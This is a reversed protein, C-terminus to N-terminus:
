NSRLLGLTASFLQQRLRRLLRQEIQERDIACCRILRTKVDRVSGVNFTQGEERRSHRLPQAKVINAAVIRISELM